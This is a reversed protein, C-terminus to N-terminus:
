FALLKMALNGTINNAQSFLSTSIQQLIQSQTLNASEQAIDADKILSNKTSLNIKDINQLEIISDIRNMASGVQSRRLSFVDILEDCKQIAVKCNNITSVDINFPDLNFGLDVNIMNDIGANAGIQLDVSNDIATTIFESEEPPIIDGTKFEGTGQNYFLQESVKDYMCAVGNNDIVPIFDRVLTEGDYLKLSKMICSSPRSKAQNNFIYISSDTTGLSASTDCNYQSSNVTFKNDKISITNFDNTNLSASTTIEKTNLRLYMRSKNTYQGLTFNDLKGSVYSQYTSKSSNAYFETEIGNVSNEKVGTDIWQTGTSELYEVEYAYPKEPPKIEEVEEISPDFIVKENYTTSKKEREIEASLQNIEDQIAKLEEKSTTSNKAKLALDRIRMVKNTMNELASDAINLLSTGQMANKNAIELGSLQIDTKTAIISNAADDKVKNIKLGSSMRELACSIKSNSKNIDNRIALTIPNTAISNILPMVVKSFLAYWHAM